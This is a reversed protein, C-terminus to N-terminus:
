GMLLRNAHDSLNKLPPSRNVVGKLQINLFIFSKQFNSIRIRNKSIHFGNYLKQMLMKIQILMLYILMILNLLLPRWM